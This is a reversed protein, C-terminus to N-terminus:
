SPRASEEGLWPVLFELSVRWNSELRAVAADRDGRRLADQIERHQSVSTIVRGSERMYALEYRFARNKLAEISELLLRNGCGELLKEHWRRDRELAAEPDDQARELQRDLRELEEIQEPGPPAATRLALGELTWLVPYIEGAERRTLPAVFFGRGPTARVFGEAELGLLAERLPTRSIGLEAALAPESLPTGPPPDGRLLAHLLSRRVEGRLPTRAIAIRSRAAPSGFSARESM